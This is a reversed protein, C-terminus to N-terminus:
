SNVVIAQAQATSLHKQSLIVPAAKIKNTTFVAAAGCPSQSHLIALDPDDRTKIGAHTAGALFGKASTITGSPILQFM